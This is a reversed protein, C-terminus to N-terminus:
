TERLVLIGQPNKKVSEGLGNIFSSHNSKLLGQLKDRVANYKHWAAGTKVRKYKRWVTNRQKILCHSRIM